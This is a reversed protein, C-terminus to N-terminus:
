YIRGKLILLSLQDGPALTSKKELNDTIELAEQFKGERILTNDHNLEELFSVPM